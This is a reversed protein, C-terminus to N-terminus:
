LIKSLSQLCQHTIVRYNQGEKRDRKKYIPIIVSIRQNEPVGQTKWATEIIQHLLHMGEEGLYNLMEYKSRDLGASKENELSHIGKKM